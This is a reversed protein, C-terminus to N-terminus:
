IQSFGCFCINLHKKEGDDSAYQCALPYVIRDEKENAKKFATHMKWIMDAAWM